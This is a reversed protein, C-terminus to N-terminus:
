LYLNHEGTTTPIPNENNFPNFKLVSLLSDRFLALGCAATQPENV